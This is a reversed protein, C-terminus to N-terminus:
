ILQHAPAWRREGGCTMINSIKNWIFVECDFWMKAWGQFIEDQKPSIQPSLFCRTTNAMHTKFLVKGAGGERGSSWISGSCSALCSSGMHGLPLQKWFHAPLSTKSYNAWLMEWCWLTEGFRNSTAERSSRSTDGLGRLMCPTVRCSGPQQIVGFGWHQKWGLPTCTM